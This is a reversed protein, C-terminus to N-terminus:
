TQPVCLFDPIADPRNESVFLQFSQGGCGSSGGFLAPLGRSATAGARRGLSGNLSAQGASFGRLGTASRSAKAERRRSAVSILRLIM